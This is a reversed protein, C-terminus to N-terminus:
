RATDHEAVADSHEVTVPREIWYKLLQGANKKVMIFYEEDREPTHAFLDEWLPDESTDTGQDEYAADTQPIDKWHYRHLCGPM